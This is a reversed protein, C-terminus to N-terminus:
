AAANEDTFVTDDIFYERVSDNLEDFVDRRVGRFGFRASRRFFVM